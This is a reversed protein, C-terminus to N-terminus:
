KKLVVAVDTREGHVVDVRLTQELYGGKKFVFDYSGADMTNIRFVGALGTFFQLKTGVVDVTVNAVPDGAEDKVSGKVALRKFGPDTLVRNNKYNRYFEFHDARVMEFVKDMKLLLADTDRFLVELEATADKRTVVKEKPKPLMAKYAEIASSLDEMMLEKLNYGDMRDMNQMGAEYVVVCQDVLITDASRELDSKTYNVLEELEGDEVDIAFARLKRSVLLASLILRDELKEKMAATGKTDREQIVRASRIDKISGKLENLYYKFKPIEQVIALPAEVLGDAVVDYMSLKREQIRKM